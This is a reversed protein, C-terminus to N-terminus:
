NPSPLSITIALGKHAVTLQQQKRAKERELRCGEFFVIVPFENGEAVRRLVCEADACSRSRAFALTPRIASNDGACPLPFKLTM